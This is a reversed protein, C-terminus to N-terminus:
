KSNCFARIGITKGILNYFINPYTVEKYLVSNKNFNGKLEQQFGFDKMLPNKISFKNELLNNANILYKGLLNEEGRTFNQVFCTFNDIDATKELGQYDERRAYTTYRTYNISVFLNAEESFKQSVMENALQWKIKLNTINEYNYIAGIAVFSILTGIFFKSFYKVDSVYISILSLLMFFSIYYRDFVKTSVSSILFSLIVLIAIIKLNKDFIIKKYNQILLVMFTSFAFSLLISIVIKFIQNNAFTFKLETFYKAGIGEIYLVSELTFINLSFFYYGLLLSSIFILVKFKLKLNKFTGLSPLLFFLGLYPILLYIRGIRDFITNYKIISVPSVSELHNLNQYKPYLLILFVAALALCLISSSFLNLKKQKFLILILPVFLIIGYQRVSFALITFIITLLYNKTSYNENLELLFRITTFFFLLYYIETNFSYSYFIMYPNFITVILGVITQYRNLELINFIKYIQNILLITIIISLIKLSTFSTGFILSWAFAIFGQGIFTPDILANKTFLGKNFADIQMKFYFDDSVSFEGLPNIILTVALYLLVTAILIKYNKLFSLIM